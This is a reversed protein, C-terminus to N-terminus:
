NLTVAQSTQMKALKSLVTLPIKRMVAGPAQCRPIPPPFADRVPPNACEVLLHALAECIFDAGQRSYAIDDALLKNSLEM